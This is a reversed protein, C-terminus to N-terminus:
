ASVSSFSSAKFDSESGSCGTVSGPVSTAEFLGLYGLLCFIVRQTPSGYWFFINIQLLKRESTKEVRDTTICSGILFKLSMIMSSSFVSMTESPLM